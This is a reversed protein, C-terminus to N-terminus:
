LPVLSPKFAGSRTWSSHRSTRAAPLERAHAYQNWASPSTYGLNGLPIGALKSAFSNLRFLIPIQGTASSVFRSCVDELAQATCKLSRHRVVVEEESRRIQVLSCGSAFRISKLHPLPDCSDPTYRTSACFCGAEASSRRDSYASTAVTWWELVCPDWLLVPGCTCEKSQPSGQFKSGGM